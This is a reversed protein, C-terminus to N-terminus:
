MIRKYGMNYIKLARVLMESIYVEEIPIVGLRNNDVHIFNSIVTLVKANKYNIAGFKKELESFTEKLNKIWLDHEEEFLNSKQNEIYYSTYKNFLECQNKYKKDFVKQVKDISLGLFDIWINSYRRLGNIIEDKKIGLLLFYSLMCELAVVFIEGKKDTKYLISQAFDSSNMFHTESIEIGEKGGYKFYEREYEFRIVSNDLQIEVEKEGELKSFIKQENILKNYDVKAKSLNNKAILRLREEVRIAQEDDELMVRYRIHQGGQWYRIYFWRIEDEILEKVYTNIESIHKKIVKNLDDYYFIHWCYWKM